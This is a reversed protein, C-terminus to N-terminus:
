NNQVKHKIQITKKAIQKAIAEILKISANKFDNFDFGFNEINIDHGLVTAKFNIRPSNGENLWEAKARFTIHKINFVQSSLESGITAAKALTRRVKGLANKTKSLSNRTVAKFLRKLKQKKNEPEQICENMLAEDDAEEIYLKNAAKLLLTEINTLAAQELNCYVFWDGPKRFKKASFQLTSQFQNFIKHKMWFEAGSPSFSIRTDSYLGGLIDIEARGDIFMKAFPPHIALYFHFIPGFDVNSKDILDPDYETQRKGGVGAGTIHIPGLHFDSIYALAQGAEVALRFDVSTKSGFFSTTLAATAGKKYYKGAVIADKPAFYIEANDFGVNPILPKVKSWLDFKKRKLEGTEDDMQKKRLRGTNEAAQAVLKVLDEVYIGGTFKGHMIFDPATSSLAFSTAMEVFKDGVGLTGRIGLREIALAGHSAIAEAIDSGAQIGVNGISFPTGLVRHWIGNMWGALIVEAPPIYTVGTRFQLIDKILTVNAGTIISISIPFIAEVLQLRLMLGATQFHKGFNLRGPLEAILSSGMLMPDLIGHLTLDTLQEGNPVLKDIIMKLPGGVTVTGVLNLGKYFKRGWQVDYYTNGSAVFAFNSWKLVDLVKLKNSIKAFKTKGPFGILISTYLQGMLEGLTGEMTAQMSETSTPDEGPLKEGARDPNALNFNDKDAQTVTVTSGVWPGLKANMNRAKELIEEMTKVNTQPPNGVMKKIKDQSLEQNIAKEKVEDIAEQQEAVFLQTDDAPDVQPPLNYGWGMQLKVFIPLGFAQAMGSLAVENNDEYITIKPKHIVIKDLQEKFWKPMPAKKLGPFESLPIPKGSKLWTKLPKIKSSINVPKTTNFTTFTGALLLFLTYQKIKM